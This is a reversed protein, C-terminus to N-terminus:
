IHLKMKEIHLTSKRHRTINSKSSICGCECTINVNVRAKIEEKHKEYYDKKYQKFYEPNEERYKKSIENLRVKNEIQYVKKMEKIQEKNEERYHKSREKHEQKHENYYEKKKANITEKNTEYYEKYTRTPVQKNICKVSEIYKREHKLLQEKNECNIEEILIISYNDNKIIEFSSVQFTKEKKIWRKYENVHGALRMSLAQTTSGIYVNGNTNDVIKYIKSKSYDPM